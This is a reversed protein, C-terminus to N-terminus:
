VFAAYHSGLPSQLNRETTYVTYVPTAYHSGSSSQFNREITRIRIYISIYFYRLPERLFKSIERPKVSAAESSVLRSFPYGQWLMKQPWATDLDSIDICRGHSMPLGVIDRTLIQNKPLKGLPVSRLTHRNWLLPVKLPRSVFRFPTIPGSRGAM